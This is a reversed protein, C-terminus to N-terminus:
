KFIANKYFILENISEQIDDLARHKKQKKFEVLYWSKALEKITSVDILRYHLYAAVKPMYKKIFVLDNYVSNGALFVNKEESNRELFQVLREELEAVTVNSSVCLDLLGSAQHMERVVDPMLDLQNQTAGLVVPEFQDLMNLNEDTIIAAAELIVNIASNLGTMELDLWFFKKKM